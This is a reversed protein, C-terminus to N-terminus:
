YTSAPDSAPFSDKLNKDLDKESINERIEKDKKIDREYAGKKWGDCFNKILTFM